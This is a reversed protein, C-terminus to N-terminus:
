SRVFFAENALPLINPSCCAQTDFDFFDIMEQYYIDLLPKFSLTNTYIFPLSIKGEYDAAPPTRRWVKVITDLSASLDQRTLVNYYRGPRGNIRNWVKLEEKDLVHPLQQIKRQFELSNGEEWDLDRLNPFCKKLIPQTWKAKDHLMESNPLTQSRIVLKTSMGYDKKLMWQIGKAHALGSLHNGMEGKLQVVITITPTPSSFSFQQLQEHSIWFGVVISLAVVLLIMGRLSMMM